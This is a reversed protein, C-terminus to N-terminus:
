VEHNWPDFNAGSPLRLKANDKNLLEAWTIRSEANAKNEGLKTAGDMEKGGGNRGDENEGVALVTKNHPGTRDKMPSNTENKDAEKSSSSSASDGPSGKQSEDTKRKRNKKKSKKAPRPDM